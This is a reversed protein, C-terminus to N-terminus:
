GNRNTHHAKDPPQGVWSRHPAHCLPCNYHSLQTPLSWSENFYAIASGLIRSEGVNLVMEQGTITDVLVIQPPESEVLQVVKTDSLRV